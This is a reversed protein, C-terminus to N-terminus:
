REHFRPELYIHIYLHLPHLNLYFYLSGFRKEEGKGEEGVERTTKEQAGSKKLRRRSRKRWRSGGKRDEERGRGREEGEGRRRRRM